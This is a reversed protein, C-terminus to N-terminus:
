QRWASIKDWLAPSHRGFYETFKVVIGTNEDNPDLRGWLDYATEDNSTVVWVGTSNPLEFSDVVQHNINETKLSSSVVIYTTM